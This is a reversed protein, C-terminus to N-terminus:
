TEIRQCRLLLGHLGQIVMHPVRGSRPMCFARRERVKSWRREAALPLSSDVPGPFQEAGLRSLIVPRGLNIM